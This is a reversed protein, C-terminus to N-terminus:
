CGNIGVRYERIIMSHSARMAPESLGAGDTVGDEIHRWRPYSLNITRMTAVRRGSGLAFGPYDTSAYYAPFLTGVIRRLSVPFVARHFAAVNAEFTAPEGLRRLPAFMDTFASYPFAERTPHLLGDELGARMAAVEKINASTGTAVAPAVGVPSETAQNTPVVENAAVRQVVRCVLAAPLRVIAWVPRLLAPECEATVVVTTPGATPRVFAHHDINVM